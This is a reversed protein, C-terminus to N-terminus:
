NGVTTGMTMTLPLDAIKCSVSFKCVLPGTTWSELMMVGLMTPALSNRQVECKKGAAPLMNQPTCPPVTFRGNPSGTTWVCVLLQAAYVTFHLGHVSRSAFFPATDLCADLPAQFLRMFRSGSASM